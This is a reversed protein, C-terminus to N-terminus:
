CFILMGISQKTNQLKHMVVVQDHKFNSPVSAYNNFYVLYSKSVDPRDLRVTLETIGFKSEAICQYDALDKDEIPSVVLIEDNVIKM